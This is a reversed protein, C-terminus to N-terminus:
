SAIWLLPCNACCGRAPWCGGRGLEGAFFAAIREVPVSAAQERTLLEREVMREVQEAISAAGNVGALDLNQLVLHM